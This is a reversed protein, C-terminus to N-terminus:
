RGDADAGSDGAEAILMWARIMRQVTTLWVAGALVWLGVTLSWPLTDTAILLFCLFFQRATKDFFDPWGKNDIAIEIAARAKAYSTLMSGTIVAFVPLWLGTVWGIVGLTVTEQVRDVMADLYGGFKSTSGQARAVLGDLTDFVYAFVLGVGLAVPDRHVLYAACNLLVLVLGILTIQDPTIGSAALMELARAAIAPRGTATKVATQRDTRGPAAGRWLNFALVLAMLPAWILAVAFTAHDLMFFQRISELM